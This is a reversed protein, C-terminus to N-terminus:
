KVNNESVIDNLIKFLAKKGRQCNREDWLSYHAIKNTECKEIAQSAMNELTIFIAKAGLGGYNKVASTFKDIDTNSFIRTKCEVFLLKRGTNVIVDIENKPQENNYPFVVNMWVERCQPWSSLLSAVKYEFWGSFGVMDISHPSVFSWNHPGWNDVLCINVSQGGGEHRQWTMVSGTRSDVFRGRADHKLAAENNEDSPITLTNFLRKNHRWLDEILPLQRLDDETYDNLNVYSQVVTQNFMFINEISLPEIEHSDNHAYDYIHSNQDVYILELNQYKGSLKAVAISWPKTGSSINVEVLCNEFRKLLSDFSDIAGFCDNPEFEVLEVPRGVLKTLDTKLTLAANKTKASHVLIFEDADSESIALYVPMTQGGVLAIHVISM